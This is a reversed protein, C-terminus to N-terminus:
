DGKHIILSIKNKLCSPAGASVTRSWGSSIYKDSDGNVAKM